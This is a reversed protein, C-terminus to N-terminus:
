KLYILKQFTNTEGFSLDVIYVGASIDVPNWTLMHNGASSFGEQLVQVIHGSTNYVVIRTSVDSELAYRINVAPNFPNPFASIIGFEDPLINESPYLSIEVEGQWEPNESGYNMNGLRYEYSGECVMDTFQYCHSESTTMQGKLEDHDIYSALREWELSGAGRRDIIYGLNEIESETQWSLVVCGQNKEVSFSSLEIPLPVDIFTTNYFYTAGANSLENLNATDFDNYCAGVSIDDGSIAVSMSFGDGDLGDSATLIDEYEWSDGTLKYVYASGKHDNDYYSGVVARNGDIDVMMGYLDSAHRNEAVVKQQEIWTDGMLKYFYASGANSLEDEGNVDHDEFYAGVVIYGDTIAADLGFGDNTTRDSAVLKQTEIWDGDTKQYVYVAGPYDVPTESGLDTNAVKDGVIIWDAYIDVTFGFMGTGAKDSAVLKKVQTWTTGSREFVYAAGRRDGLEDKVADAGVVAVNGYLSIGNGFYDGDSLDDSTITQQAEWVSGNYYYIHAKGDDKLDNGVIAYDGDISVHSGFSTNSPGSVKQKEIWIGEYKELFYVADEKMASVIARDGSIDVRWGYEANSVRATSVAKTIQTWDEALLAVSLVACLLLVINIKKLIPRFNM